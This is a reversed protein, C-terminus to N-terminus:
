EEWDKKMKEILFDPHGHTTQYEGTAKIVNPKAGNKRAMDFYRSLEWKKVFCNSVVVTKGRGLEEKVRQQCWKQAEALKDIDFKYEGDKEFFMDTEIHVHARKNQLMEKAMTSKGSGPLGRILHLKQRTM